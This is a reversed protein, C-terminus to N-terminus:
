WLLGTALLLSSGKRRCVNGQTIGGGANTSILVLFFDGFLLCGFFLVVLFLYWFLFRQSM